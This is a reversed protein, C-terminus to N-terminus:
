CKFSFHALETNVFRRELCIRWLTEEYSTETQRFADIKQCCLPRGTTCKLHVNEFINMACIPLQEFM